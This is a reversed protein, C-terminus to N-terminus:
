IRGLMAALYFLCTNSVRQRHLGARLMTLFRFVGRRTRALKQVTERYNPDLEGSVEALATLNSDIWRGYTGDFVLRLRQCLAAFGRHAGLLNQEHQRYCLVTHDDVLVTGGAGSVLQYLWWDHFPVNAPVGARRVLALGPVNLAASHGSVINQTLANAFSPQRRPPMSPGVSNLNADTHTSQAGYLMPQHAPARAMCELARALKEAHWVDDQDSLAVHCQPLDAHALLSLFNSAAGKGSGKILKVEHHGKWRMKWRQLIEVTADQSGDDSVWLQWCKHTQAEFSALQEDLHEAGNYTCLLIAVPIESQPLM